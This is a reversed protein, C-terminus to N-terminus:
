GSAGCVLKSSFGYRMTQNFGPTEKLTELTWAMCGDKTGNAFPVFGGEANRMVIMYQLPWLVEGSAVSFTVRQGPMAYPVQTNIVPVSNDSYLTYGEWICTGANYLTTHVNYLSNVKLADGQVYDKPQMEIYAVDMCPEKTPEPIPTAPPPLQAVVETAAPTATVVRVVEVTKIVDQTIVKPVEVTVVEAKYQIEPQTYPLMYTYTVYVSALSLICAIVLFMVGILIWHYVKM